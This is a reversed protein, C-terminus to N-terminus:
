ILPVPFFLLGTLKNGEVIKKFDDSVFTLSTRLESIHFVHIGELKEWVFGYKIIKMIRGSSEFRQVVSKSADLCDVHGINIEYYNGVDTILPLFEVQTNILPDIILRAKINVAEVVVGRIFDGIPKKREKKADRKEGDYFNMEIPRWQNGMKTGSQFKNVLEVLNETPEKSKFRRYQESDVRIIWIRRNKNM